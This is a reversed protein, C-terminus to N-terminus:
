KNISFLSKYAQRFEKSMFVYLVPNICPAAYILIYSIINFVPYTDVHSYLMKTLTMPFYCVFLCIMIVLVMTRLKKDKKTPLLKKKMENGQQFTFQPMQPQENAADTEAIDSVDTNNSSDTSEDSSVNATNTNNHSKIRLASKKVVMLIRIYCLFITVFAIIISSSVITKKPNGNNKDPIITCSGAKPDLGMQGWIEFFPLSIFGVSFIWLAALMIRINRKTYIKHYKMPHCVIVYRIIAIAVINYLSVIVLTYNFLPFLRCLVKGHVWSHTWYSFMVMPLVLACFLLDAVSLNIIFIATANQVQKFRKLSIVTILNGPVGIIIFLMCCVSVFKLLQDPYGVFLEVKRLEADTQYESLGISSSNM